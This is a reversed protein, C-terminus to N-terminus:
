WSVTVPVIDSYSGSQANQPGYVIGYVPIFQEAGTATLSVGVVDDWVTAYNAATFLNYNLTSSSGSHNLQRAQVNGSNGPGMVIKFNTGVNCQIRIAGTNNGGTVKLDQDISSVTGFSLTGFSINGANSTGAECSNVLTASVNISANKTVAFVSAFMMPLFILTILVQLVRKTVYEMIM